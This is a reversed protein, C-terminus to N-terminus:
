QNYINSRVIFQLVNVQGEMNRKFIYKFLFKRSRGCSRKQNRIEQDGHEAGKRQEEHLQHQALVVPLPWDRDPPHTREKPTRALTVYTVKYSLTQRYSCLVMFIINVQDVVMM